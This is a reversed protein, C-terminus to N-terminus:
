TLPFRRSSQPTVPHCPPICPESDRIARVRGPERLWPAGALLVRRATAPGPRTCLLVIGRRHVFSLNRTIGSLRGSGHRNRRVMEMRRPTGGHAPHWPRRPHWPRSARGHRNVKARLSGIPAVVASPAPSVVPRVTAGGEVRVVTRGIVRSRDQPRRRLAFRRTSDAAQGGTGAWARREDSRMPGNCSFRM